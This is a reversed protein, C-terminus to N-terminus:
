QEAGAFVSYDTLGEQEINRPYTDLWTAAFKSGAFILDGDWAVGYYAIQTRKTQVGSINFINLIMQSHYDDSHYVTLIGYESGNWQIEAGGWSTTISIPGTLTAGSTSVRIFKVPKAWVVTGSGLWTIGYGSGDWSIHPYNGGNAVVTIPGAVTGGNADLNRFYVRGAIEYVLGYGNGNWAIGPPGLDNGTLESIVLSDPTLRIGFRDATFFNIDTRTGGPIDNHKLWFIGYRDGLWVVGVNMILTQEQNSPVSLVTIIDDLPTGAASVRRYLLSANPNGNPMHGSAWFVGYEEGTWIIKPSGYYAEGNSLKVTVGDKIGAANLTTFYVDKVLTAPYNSLEKWAVGFNSGSYAIAPTEAYSTAGSVSGATWPDGSPPTPTTFTADGSVTLNGAADKTKIRWHYITNAQLGTLPVSHSTFLTSDLVTLTGYSTTLGYEVQSTAPENTTWSITVASSSIISVTAASIVPPTTDPVPAPTCSQSLAPKLSTTGCNHADTCSRTQTNSVCTSWSGCTWSESCPTPTSTPAPTCSQSLAPKLNTTGCNHADTCSRTQTNDVCISWSSCSWFESCPTSTPTPTPNPICGQSLIPKLNTTGCNNTDTCTRTQTNNICTSWSGCTWSESCPVPTPTPTVCAGITDGHAKHAEWASKGITITQKNNTNGDPIHCITIKEEPSEKPIQNTEANRLLGPPVKGSKGAEDLASNIKEITKPGVIGTGESLGLPRLVDEAHKEQFKKVAKETLPGFYGTVLGEPYVEPDTKLFEQLRKVEEDTVGKRLTKTFKVIEQVQQEVKTLQEQLQNIQQKLLEIQKLLSATLEDLNTTQTKAVMPLALALILFGCIAYKKM